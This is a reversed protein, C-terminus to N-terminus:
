QPKSSLPNMRRGDKNFGITFSIKIGAQFRSISNYKMKGSNLFGVYDYGNEVPRFSVLLKGVDEMQSMSNVSNLGYDVFVGFYMNYNNKIRYNLGTELCLIVNPFSLDTKGECYVNEIEVFGKEYIDNFHQGFADFDGTFTLSSARAQFTNSVGGGVKAGLAIYYGSRSLVTSTQYRFMVSGQVNLM